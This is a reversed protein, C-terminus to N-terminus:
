TGLYKLYVAGPGGTGANINSHANIGWGYLQSYPATGNSYNKTNHPEYKGNTGLNGAGAGADYTAKKGGAVSYSGFTTSTGDEGFTGQGLTVDISAGKTLLVGSYSQCSSGGQYNNNGEAAGGGGYLEVYYRGTEPVTWTGSQTIIWETVGGMDYGGIAAYYYTTGLNNFQYPAGNGSYLSLTKKDASKKVELDLSSTAGYYIQYSTTLGNTIMPPERNPFIFLVPEFPFTFVTPNSSGYTGTGMYWGTYLLLNNDQVWQKIEALSQGDLQKASYALPLVNDFSTGNWQKMNVNYDAM